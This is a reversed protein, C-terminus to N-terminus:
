LIPSSLYKLAEELIVDKENRIDEITEDVWIDPQIGLRQVHEGNETIIGKGTFGFVIGGPLSTNTLEGITGNTTRGILKINPRISKLFITSFEGRSITHENILGVLNVSGGHYSLINRNPQKKTLTFALSGQNMNDDISLQPLVFPTETIYTATLNSLYSSLIEITGKTHGRLDIILSSSKSNIFENIITDIEDVSIRTLDLYAIKSGKFDANDLICYKANYKRLNQSHHPITRNIEFEIEIGNSKLVTLKVKTNEQGSLIRLDSRWLESQPTSCSLLSNLEKRKSDVPCDDIKKIIDGISLHEMTTDKNFIDTIVLEGQITKVAIPPVHTGIYKSFYTSNIYCHSDSLTTSLEAIVKVYEMYSEAKEFKPIFTTLQTEWSRDILNKYPYFTNVFNWIKFLSYLRLSYSIEEGANMSYDEISDLKRIAYVHYINSKQSKIGLNNSFESALKYLHESTRENVKTIISDPRLGVTSDPNVIEEQRIFIKLDPDSPFVFIRSKISPEYFIIEGDDIRSYDEKEPVYIISGRGSAQIASAINIINPPSNKDIIFTMHMMPNATVKKLPYIAEADTTIFGSRFSSPRTRNVPQYEPYGYSVRQRTTPLILPSTLFVRFAEQFMVGLNSTGIGFYENDLQRADFIVGKCTPPICKFKSILDKLKNWDEFQKQDNLIIAFINESIESIYPQPENKLKNVNDESIDLEESEQCSTLQIHRNKYIVRTNFDKIKSVMKVVSEVLQVDTTNHNAFVPIADLLATDWNINRYSLYPHTNNILGWLKCLSVLRTHVKNQAGNSDFISYSLISEFPSKALIDIFEARVNSKKILNILHLPTHNDKDKISKDAGHSLLLIVSEKSENKIAKKSYILVLSNHNFLLIRVWHLPTMLSNDQINVNAGNRLLVKM